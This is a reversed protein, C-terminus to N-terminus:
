SARRGDRSQAIFIIGLCLFVVGVGIFARQGSIGLTGLGIGLALFAVGATKKSQAAM